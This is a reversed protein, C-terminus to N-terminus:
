DENLRLTQSISPKSVLRAMMGLAIICLLILLALAILLSPPIVLQVPLVRQIVYFEGSTIEAAQPPSSFVLAPVVTAALAGGFVIGLGIAACYIIGQEFLLVRGLQGPTCGLARLLAFNTLRNNASLWSAILNGTLALLLVTAAGLALIGILNIYLPDSQAQALMTRRDFVPNLALPGQNLTARIKSLLAPDDTTRLWVQNAQLTAHASQQFITALTQYDTIIGGPPTYDNTGGSILSDNVTPIHEVKDIAVFTIFTASGPLALLFPTGTSLDLEKWALADVIAPVPFPSSISKQALNKMLSTLPQSSDQDTWLATQAYTSTDVARVELANVNEGALTGQGSYGLSASIVGPIHRYAATQQALSPQALTSQPITGSFDAGVQHATFNFAQQTQSANFILTFIGFSSALALLLIMRTAQRPSRVMQAIALMLPAGPRRTALWAILRLLLPFTRLFLLIGALVLLIPAVLALPTSILLTTQADLAGSNTVYLSLVFGTLAIIIFIIDLNLRRWLPRRTSRAAERRLTLVDQSASGRVSIIMTIVACAAAALAFWRLSLAVQLPNGDLVNLANQDVPMLLRQGLIRVTPIALFPGIVLALLGVSISQTVFSGFIQRRSAGRSRLLAIVAAQREVILDVIMSIFFLILALIQIALSDSPIVAVSVRDRYREITSPTSDSELALGSLRTNSIYTFLALQGSNNALQTQTSALQSILPDLDNISIHSVDLYYYWNLTPAQDSSFYIQGESGQYTHSIQTLLALYTSTSMLAKYSTFSGLASPDFSYGQWYPDNSNAALIGTVHLTLTQTIFKPEAPLQQRIYFMFRLPILAGVTIHLSDATSQNIAVELDASNSQPLRGKLTQVRSAVEQINLGLLTMEDGSTNPNSSIIDMGSTQLIFEPPKNIYLGLQQHMFDQLPQDIQQAFIRENLSIASTTLFLESDQPSLNLVSRLGATLSVTSFLPVACILTVAVLVGLAAILLLRWTERIRWFALTITSPIASRDLPKHFYSISM